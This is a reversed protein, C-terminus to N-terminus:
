KEKKRVKAQLNTRRDTQLSGKKLGERKLGKKGKKRKKVERESECEVSVGLFVFCGEGGKRESGDRM